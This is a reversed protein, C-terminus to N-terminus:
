IKYFSYSGDSKFTIGANLYYSKLEPRFMHVIDYAEAAWVGGNCVFVIPKDRALEDMRKALDDIPINISGKFSGKRFSDQSRVDVVLIIQPTSEYIQKFSDVAIAGPEGASTMESLVYRDGSQAIPGSSCATVMMILLLVLFFELKLKMAAVMVM